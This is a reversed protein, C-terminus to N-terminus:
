LEDIIIDKELGEIENQSSILRKRMEQSFNHYKLFVGMRNCICKVVREMRKESLNMLTTNSGM